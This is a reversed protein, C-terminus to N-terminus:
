LAIRPEISLINAIRHSCVPPLHGNKKDGLYTAIKGILSSYSSKAEFILFLNTKSPNSVSTISSDAV